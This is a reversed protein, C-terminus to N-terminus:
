PEAGLDVALDRALGECHAVYRPIRLLRFLGHAERLRAAAQPLAGDRHSV